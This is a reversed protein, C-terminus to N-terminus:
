LFFLRALVKNDYFYHAPQHIFHLLKHLLGHQSQNAKWSEEWRACRQIALTSSHMVATDAQFLVIRFFVVFHVLVLIAQVFRLFGANRLMSTTVMKRAVLFANLPMSRDERELYLSSSKLNSSSTQLDGHSEDPRLSCLVVYMRQLCMLMFPIWPHEPPLLFCVNDDVAKQVHWSLPQLQVIPCEALDHANVLVQNDQTKQHMSTSIVFHCIHPESLDGQSSNILWIRTPLVHHKTEDSLAPKGYRPLILGMARNGRFLISHVRGQDIKIRTGLIAWTWQHLRLAWILTIKQHTTQCMQLLLTPSYLRPPPYSPEVPYPPKPLFAALHIARSRHSTWVM